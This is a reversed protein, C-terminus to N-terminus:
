LVWFFFLFAKLNPNTVVSLADRPALSFYFRTVFAYCNGSDTRM